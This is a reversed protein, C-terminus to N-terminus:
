SKIIDYTLNEEKMFGDLVAIFERLAKETVANDPVVIGVKLSTTSNSFLHVLKKMAQQLDRKAFIKRPITIALKLKIKGMASEAKFIKSDTAIKVIDNM